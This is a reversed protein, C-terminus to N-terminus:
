ERIETSVGVIRVEELGKRKVLYKHDREKGGEARQCTLGEM